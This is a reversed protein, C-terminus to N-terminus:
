LALDDAHIHHSGITFDNKEHNKKEHNRTHEYQDCWM